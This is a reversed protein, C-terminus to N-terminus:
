NNSIGFKRVMIAKIRSDQSVNIMWPCGEVEVCVVVLRCAQNRPKRIKVRENASYANLAKGFEIMCSIQGITRLSSEWFMRAVQEFILVYFHENTRYIYINNGCIYLTWKYRSIQSSCSSNTPVSEGVGQQRLIFPTMVLAYLQLFTVFGSSSTSALIM